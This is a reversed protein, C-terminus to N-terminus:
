DDINQIIEELKKAADFSNDYEFVVNPIYKLHSHGALYAKLLYMNDNLCEIIEVINTVAFPTVYVSANKLDPSVRVETVTISVDHVFNSYVKDVNLADSIIRRITESVKLQRESPGQNKKFRLRGKSKIM